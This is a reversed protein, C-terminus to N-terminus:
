RIVFRAVVDRDDGLHLRLLYTGVAMESAGLNVILRDNMVTADDIRRVIEGLPTVISVDISRTGIGETEIVLEGERSAPQPIIRRIGARDGAVTRDNVSTAQAVFEFAIQTYTVPAITDHRTEIGNTATVVFPGFTQLGAGDRRSLLIEMNPIFGLSDTTGQLIVQQDDDRVTVAVNRMGTGSTDVALISLTALRQLSSTADVHVADDRYMCDVCRVHSDDTVVMDNSDVFEARLWRVTTTDITASNLSLEDFVFGHRAAGLVNLFSVNRLDLATTTDPIAVRPRFLFGDGDSAGITVGHFDVSGGHADLASDLGRIVIDRFDVFRSGLGISALLSTGSDADVVLDRWVWDGVTEITLSDAVAIRVHDLDLDFGKLLADGVADFWIWRGVYTTDFDIRGITDILHVNYRVDLTDDTATNVIRTTVVGGETATFPIQSSTMIDETSDSPTNFSSPGAAVFWDFPASATVTHLDDPEEWGYVYRYFLFDGPNHAAVEDIAAYEGDPAALPVPDDDRKTGRAPLREVKINTCGNPLDAICQKEGAKLNPRIREVIVIKEKGCTATIKYDREAAKDNNGTNEIYVGGRYVISDKTRNGIKIKLRMCLREAYVKISGANTSITRESGVRDNAAGVFRVSDNLKEIQPRPDNPARGGRAIVWAYLECIDIKGNRNLDAAEDKSCAELAKEWYTGSGDGVPTTNGSSSSTVVTGKIKLKKFWPISAGSHCATVEICVEAFGADALKTALKEWSLTESKKHASDWVVVGSQTGHGIYKFHVKDCGKGKLADIADCLQQATLGRGSDGAHIRFNLETVGPGMANGNLREKWTCIDHEVTQEEVDLNLKGVVVIAWSSTDPTTVAEYPVKAACNVAGGAVRRPNNEGFCYPGFDPTQGNIEPWMTLGTHRDISGDVASVVVYEVPHDYLLEPHLDLYFFYVPNDYLLFFVSDTAQTIVTGPRILSDLPSAPSSLHLAVLSDARPHGALVDDQLIAIADGRSLLPPVGVRFEKEAHNNTPNADLEFVIDVTIVYNGTASPTWSGETQLTLTQNGPLSPIEIPEQFVPESPSTPDIIRVDCFLNQAANGGMNAIVFRPAIAQSTPIVNNPVLIDGAVVDTTQQAHLRTPGSIVLTLTLLILSSILLRIM